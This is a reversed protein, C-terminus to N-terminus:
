DGGAVALPPYSRLPPVHLRLKEGLALAGEREVWATIGRLNKAASKFAKGFGPHAREIERAPIQCPANEMDVVLAAGSEGILRASPPALTLDPLGEIMVNAGLWEPRLEPVGMVEAARALEERSVVSVQRTNRIVTGKKPYQATVRSCSPRTLGSHSEGAIGEFRLEVRDVEESQPSGERDRVIGLWVVSGYIDTASLIAM